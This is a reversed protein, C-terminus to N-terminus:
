PNEVTIKLELKHQEGPALTILDTGANTTEVCVFRDYDSDGLDKMQRAKEMWPNWVVTSNSGSKEIRIKRSLGLDEIVCDSKTDLYIRDTERTITLLGDQTKKAFNNVKDIYECGELGCIAIDSLDQVCYYSHFAASLTVDEDARNNMILELNLKKGIRFTIELDFSYDWGLVTNENDTLGLTIATEDKSFYQTERVQWVSTRAFGHAPKTKDTPHDAFWPWSIPIGGRIAKDPEFQSLSSLFIVPEQGIPIFSTIHAGHLFIQASASDNKIEAYILGNPGEKFVLVNPLSFQKNLGTINSIEM